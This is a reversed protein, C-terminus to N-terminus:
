QLDAAMEEGSGTDGYQERLEQIVLSLVGATRPTAFSTGSTDHYGDISDHDPLNQTWDAM